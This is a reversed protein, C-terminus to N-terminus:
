DVFHAPRGASSCGPAISNPESRGGAAGGLTGGTAAVEGGAAAVEGGAAPQKGGRPVLVKGTPLAKQVPPVALAGASTMIRRDAWTYLKM